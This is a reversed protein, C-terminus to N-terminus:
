QELNDLFEAIMSLSEGLNYSQITAFGKQKYVRYVMSNGKLEPTINVFDENFIKVQYLPNGNIDNNARNAYITLRGLHQVEFSFNNKISNLDEVCDAIFVNNLVTTELM